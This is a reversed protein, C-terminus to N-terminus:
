RTTQQSATNSYGSEGTSSVATVVYFYRSRRAVTGDVFATSKPATTILSFPGTASTARYVKNGTVGASSSQTWTLRIKNANTLAAKLSTPASPVTVAPPPPPPPPPNVGGSVTGSVEASQASETLANAATVRYYYTGNALGADGFSPATLGTRYPTSGQADAAQSRYVNFSSAGAPASWNLSITQQATSAQVNTPMSLPPAGFRALVNRTAQKVAENNDLGWNWQMSGSAFVIGGSASTYTTAHSFGWPDPSETLKRLQAPSYGNNAITDTEYGLLGPFRTGQSVGTGSYVWNAADSVVMDGDYPEGHFMVGVLGNEPQAISDNVGFIPQLDRFRTTIFKDNSPDGDLAFPDMTQAAEKYAVMTRNPEGKSSPEFRVQWYTQNAGFFGLHIGQAQAVHAASKMPYSWYEDHGSVLFAKHNLLLSGNTHLDLNSLYTVDYGERELFSVFAAEWNFFSGSGASWNNYFRAHPRNFSVKFAPQGEESNYAYLSKGGWENYAQWTTATSQYVYPAHSSDDRVVFIIYSQTGSSNPTLKALYIGSAWDTKDATNPITLRYSETWDCEILGTVPDPAPTPQKIGQLTASHMLRGGTGGYWGMRYIDLKYTSTASSVFFRITEGRNVSTHSAYGEVEPNAGTVALEWDPTGPKANEMQIVNQQAWSM